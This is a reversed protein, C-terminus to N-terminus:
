CFLCNIYYNFRLPLVGFLNRNGCIPTINVNNQPTYNYMCVYSKYYIYIYIYKVFKEDNSLMEGLKLNRGNVHMSRM